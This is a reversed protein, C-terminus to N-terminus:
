AVPEIAVNEVAEQMANTGDYLWGHALTQPIIVPMRNHIHSIHPAAERTLVTFVQLESDREMRYIGALYLLPSDPLRFAHKIKKAGAKEWEFYCSAPLLCRSELLPKRFMPKEMATESRANIIQGMGDFKVFGWKMLTYVSDGTQVPVINTPFIEGTKMSAFQETNGLNAEVARIIDRMESDEIEIYYRGCM